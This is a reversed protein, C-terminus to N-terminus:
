AAEARRELVLDHRIAEREAIAHRWGRVRDATHARQCAPKPCYHTTAQRRPFLDGCSLCRTEVAAM